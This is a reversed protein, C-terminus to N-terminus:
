KVTQIQCSNIVDLLFQSESLHQFELMGNVTSPNGFGPRDNIDLVYTNGEADNRLDVRTYHHQGPIAQIAKIALLQIEIPADFYAVEEERPRIGYLYDELMLNYPNLYDRRIAAYVKDKLVLVTYEPGILFPQIIIDSEPYAVHMRLMQTKLESENKCISEPGIGLAGGGINLKCFLPWHKQLDGKKVLEAFDATKINQASVLIQKFSKLNAKSIHKNMLDKDDSNLIFQSDAGSIPVLKSVPHHEWKISVSIGPYQNWEGGDCFNLVRLNKNKNYLAQMDNLFLPINQMSVFYGVVDFSDKPLLSAIYLPYEPTYWHLADYDTGPIYPMAVVIIPKEMISDRDLKSEIIDNKTSEGFLTFTYFLAFFAILKKYNFVKFM